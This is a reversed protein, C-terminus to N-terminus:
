RAGEMAALLTRFPLLIAAHRGKYSRAPALVSIEPWGGEGEDAESLWRSLVVLAEAIEAHSRGIGHRDMLAASAQGFACANVEM